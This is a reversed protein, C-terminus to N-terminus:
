VIGSSCRWWQCKSGSINLLHRWWEIKYWLGVMWWGSDLSVHLLLLSWRWRPSSNVSRHHHWLQFYILYISFYYVGDGGPPVTFVGTTSDYSSIFLIPLSTTSEMEVLPFQSCGQQATMVPFLYSLYLLLLSWRWWPSSHVGRNHQWLQFYILYTSFYYVGDGGSPVTLVGTTTDYSSIFWISLSTTSEMEVLPFQSCGQQPTMVPFLYSLYLLLLSWRWWPSSHVGRNHQWLQFYILYISFYYVGDGGPPVTFVGTTTDYSSIFLICLSITSETEVLPCQSCGQQPTMVPFLYSLYLLLLSWRWWPASHVSRNHQWLQFYILYTSFYYVGDGGPPVTFVGTTTDYSSIFLICLSITSETEVLTCLSCEQQATMVPFLYSLYLLLLSWRWWPASHVSRNHQWLQFYILYTSFYYVGDRGPHVTFVGTTSDYSSIFLIPLSTTSEMEVLTCLSCGQKSDYSSIFLIPLSTTSEMEVLPVTFVGTTSDYSSIFLIPLSTTSEMEVLPCLSCEQQATMVPFLYSLYLLLLSWRWWLACHVSRNHQWLQFYILYTSFYYVGDGGSPVTFVGTTSDYSSIFLIPLSTTSEMEVLTCLTCEQKTWWWGISLCLLLVGWRWGPPVTFVGTTSDYSSIFLIPLSTTSEMESLPCLSCGQQATMVPFLYSLYLLLLNWRWWPACHVSRNHQWLQFYILYTSFYYIGDGGPPVTFVGTTTDYSSIFLIPLSTTSEMEVLPCLSCEQQATMVPFLYSLYLFLLNWRWWPACHVSRNHQWLQFYILYTSFYYVGDGGPPMTFVGTTSEYSSIFLIPVSTTSEVEVLPCLSCKQQATMVPFLYSLYLLLLSWRPWPVNHVSRNHQWLQFYILYTSFYYVGDGGPPITFVGTTSDYSSIFLIPLSTTSEMEVLPCQSCGQQARM